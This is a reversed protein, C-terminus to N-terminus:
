PTDATGGLVLADLEARDAQARALMKHRLM